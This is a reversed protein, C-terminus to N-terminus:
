LVSPAQASHAACTTANATCSNPPAPAYTCRAPAASTAAPLLIDSKQGYYMAIAEVNDLSLQGLDVQGNQANGLEVGDYVVGTHNTGMSRINATKIGGVGGYDKIQVGAFYRLADAVSQSNLNQLQKGDLRQVPILEAPQRVGRVVLEHLPTAATDPAAEPTNVEAAVAAFIATFFCLITHLLREPLMRRPMDAPM